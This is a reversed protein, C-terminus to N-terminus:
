PTALSSAVDLLSRLDGGWDDFLGALVVIADRSLAATASLLQAADADTIETLPLDVLDAVDRGRPHRVLVGRIELAARAHRHMDAPLPMNPLVHLQQLADTSMMTCMGVRGTMVLAPNAALTAALLTRRTSPWNPKQPVVREGVTEVLVELLDGYARRAIVIAALWERHVDPDRQGFVSSYDTVPVAAGDALTTTPGCAVAHVAEWGPPRQDDLFEALATLSTRDHALHCLVWADPITDDAVRRAAALLPVFAATTDEAATRRALRNIDHISRAAATAVAYRLPARCPLFEFLESSLAPDAHAFVEALLAAGDVDATTADLAVAARTAVDTGTRLEPHHRALHFRVVPDEDRLIVGLDAPLDDRRAWGRRVNVDPHAAYLAHWSDPLTGPTAELAAATLESWRGV